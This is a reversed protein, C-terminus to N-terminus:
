EAVSTNFRNMAVDIGEHFYVKVAEAASEIVEPLRKGEEGAFPRLVYDELPMDENKGIGVKLRHIDNTHLAALIDAMGKHGGATGTKRFRLQGFAMAADDYVVLIRDKEQRIPLGSLATGSRNMFLLPKVAAIEVGDCDLDYRATGRTKKTNRAGGCLNSFADVVMFGVNHRTRRYAFGPNGLGILWNM